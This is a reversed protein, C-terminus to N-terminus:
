PHSDPLEPLDHLVVSIDGGNEKTDEPINRAPNIVNQSDPWKQFVMKWSDWKTEPIWGSYYNFPITGLNNQAPVPDCGMM